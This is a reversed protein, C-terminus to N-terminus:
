PAPSKAPRGRPRPPPKPRATPGPHIEGAAKRRAYEEASAKEIAWAKGSVLEGKITGKRLLYRITQPRLGILRVAEEIDLYGEM